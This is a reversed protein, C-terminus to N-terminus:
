SLYYTGCAIWGILAFFFAMLAFGIADLIKERRRARIEDRHYYTDLDKYPLIQM